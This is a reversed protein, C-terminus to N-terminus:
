AGEPTGSDRYKNSDPAQTSFIRTLIIKPFYPRYLILLLHNRMFFARCVRSCKNLVEISFYYESFNSFTM